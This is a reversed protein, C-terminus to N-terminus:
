RGNEGKAGGVYRGGDYSYVESGGWCFEIMSSAGLRVGKQGKEGREEM